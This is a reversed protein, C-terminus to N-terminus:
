GHIMGSHHNHKRETTLSLEAAEFQQLAYAFNNDAPVTIRHGNHQSKYQVGNLFMGPFFTAYNPNSPYVVMQAHKGKCASASQRCEPCQAGRFRPLNQPAVHQAPQPMQSAATQVAVAAVAPLAEKIADRVFTQMKEMDTLQAKVEVKPATESKVEPKVEGGTPVDEIKMKM